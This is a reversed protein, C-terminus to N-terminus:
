LQELSINIFSVSSNTMHLFFAIVATTMVVLGACKGFLMITMHKGDQTKYFAMM